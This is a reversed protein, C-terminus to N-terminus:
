SQADVLVFEGLQPRTQSCIKADCDSLGDSRFYDASSFRWHNAKVAVGKRAHDDHFYYVKQQRFRRQRDAVSCERLSKRVSGPM